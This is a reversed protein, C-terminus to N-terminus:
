GPSVTTPFSHESSAMYSQNKNTFNKCKGKKMQSDRTSTQRVTEPKLKGRRHAQLDTDASRPSCSVRAPGMVSRQPVAEAGPNLHLCSPDQGLQEV